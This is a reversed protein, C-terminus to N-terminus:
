CVLHVSKGSACSEETFTVKRSIIGNSIIMHGWETLSHTVVRLHVSVGYRAIIIM